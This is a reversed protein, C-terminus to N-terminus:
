INRKIRRESCWSSRSVVSFVASVSVLGATFVFIAMRILRSDAIIEALSNGGSTQSEGVRSHSLYLFVGITVTSASLSGVLAVSSELVIFQVVCMSLFISFACILDFKFHPDPLVRYMTERASSRYWMTIPRLEKPPGFIDCCTLTTESPLLNSEIM